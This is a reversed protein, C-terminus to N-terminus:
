SEALIIGANITQKFNKPKPLEITQLGIQAEVVGAYLKIAEEPPPSYDVIIKDLWSRVNKAANIMRLFTSLGDPAYKFGTTTIWFRYPLGGYDKAEEITADRFASHAIQEVAGVTGKIRHWAISERILNKKEAETLYLPEYFDVHFQEALHDLIRGSLEELRPLHLVQWIDSSLKELQFELAEASARLKPDLLVSEPLIETLKPAWIKKM